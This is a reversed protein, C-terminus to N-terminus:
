ELGAIWDWLPRLDDDIAEDPATMYDSFGGTLSKPQYGTACSAVALLSLLALRNM